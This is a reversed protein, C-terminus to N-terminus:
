EDETPLEVKVEFGGEPRPGARFTGGLATARERMGVLGAGGEDLPVGLAGRGNDAVTVTLRSQAYEILIKAQAEPGAHRRVNTLAEQVIRFVARSVKAPVPRPWGTMDLTVTLGAAEADAVLEAVRDLSPVPTLPAAEDPRRLEGLVSRVEQLAEASAQKIATLAARAQEPQNDMLHLGVGAQVNILSLHHGIVDHLEQAIALREESAQRRRQESDSRAKEARVREVQAFYERRSQGTHAFALLLVLFLGVLVAQTLSPVRVPPGLVRGATLYALYSLGTIIATAALKGAREAAFLAVLGALMYPGRPYPSVAYGTTAAAAIAYM